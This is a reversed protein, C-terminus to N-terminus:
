ALTWGKGTAITKESETLKALNSAGLTLTRTTGSASFDKLVGLLSMISAHTLPSWRIELNAAITGDFVVNELADAYMFTEAFNTINENFIVRDITKLNTCSRFATRVETANSLDLVPLRTFGSGYAFLGYANTAASTDLVVGCEELRQALDGICDNYLNRDWDYFIQSASGVPKIDYKPYFNSFGWAEGIFGLGYERRYDTRKGYDQYRDWFKDYESKVGADYVEDVGSAIADLNLKGTKGTKGRIRDAIATMKEHVSM